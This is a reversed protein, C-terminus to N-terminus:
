DPPLPAKPRRGVFYAMSGADTVEVEEFSAELIARIGEVSDGLNDFAKRKNVAKLFSTAIGNHDASDGLVTSGSLVGDPSLVAAIHEIARAKDEIPGPLCHLVNALCASDFPGEVPLPKLVDAEVTEPALRALRKSAHALVNPNPDLLVVRADDPLDAEDILFGTGPGVDLHNTSIHERYFEVMEPIDVKWAIRSMVGMVWWDYVALMAKGYDKQGAYAPDSPDM